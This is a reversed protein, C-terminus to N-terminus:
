FSGLLLSWRRLGRLGVRGLGFRRLRIGGFLLRGLAVLRAAATSLAITGRTLIARGSFIAARAGAAAGATTLTTAGAAAVTTGVASVTPRFAATRFSASIIAAFASTGATETGEISGRFDFDFFQDRVAQIEIVLRM